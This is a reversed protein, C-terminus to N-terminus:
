LGGDLKPLGAPRGLVLGTTGRKPWAPLWRMVGPVLTGAGTPLRANPRGGGGERM